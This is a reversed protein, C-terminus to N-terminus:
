DEEPLLGRWYEDLGRSLGERLHSGGRLSHTFRLNNRAYECLGIPVPRTGHGQTNRKSRTSTTPDDGVAATSGVLSKDGHNWIVCVLTTKSGFLSLTVEADRRCRQWRSKAPFVEVQIM